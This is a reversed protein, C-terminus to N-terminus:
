RTICKRIIAISQHFLSPLRRGRLTCDFACKININKFVSLSSRGRISSVIVKLSHVSMTHSSLRKTLETADYVLQLTKSTFEVKQLLRCEEFITVLDAEQVEDNVASACPRLETELM